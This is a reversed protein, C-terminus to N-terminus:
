RFHISIIKADCKVFLEQLTGPTIDDFSARTNPELSTKVDGVLTTIVNGAQNYYTFEINVSNVTRRSNNTLTITHIPAGSVSDTRYKNEVLIIKSAGVSDSAVIKWQEKVLAIADLKKQAQRYFPSEEPIKDYYYEAVEYENKEFFSDGKKLNESAKDGPDSCGFVLLVLGLIFKKM